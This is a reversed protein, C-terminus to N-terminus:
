VGPGSKNPHDLQQPENAFGSKSSGDSAERCVVSAFRSFLSSRDAM